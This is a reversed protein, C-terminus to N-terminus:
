GQRRWPWQGRDLFPWTLLWLFPLVAPVLGRARLARWLTLIPLLGRLPPAAFRLCHTLIALVLRFSLFLLRCAALDQGPM